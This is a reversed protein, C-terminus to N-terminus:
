YGFLWHESFVELDLVDVINDPPNNMNCLQNYNGDDTHSLWASALEVFDVFDVDGDPEFDGPQPTSLAFLEPIFLFDSSDITFNHVQIALVNDGPVLLGIYDSLDIPVQTCGCCAEHGASAPQDHAVTSPPYQSHVQLGNIYAIYGDDFDITFSLSKFRSTDDIDFIRRAYVSMYNNQMDTLNTTICPGYGSSTEFGIGTAGTLWASDNFSLENWDAPPETNGKVEIGKFVIRGSLARPDDLVLIKKIVIDKKLDEKWEIGNYEYKEPVGTAPGDDEILM